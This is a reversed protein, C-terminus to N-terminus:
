QVQLVLGRRRKYRRHFPVPVYLMSISLELRLSISGQMTGCGELNVPSDEFVNHAFVCAYVDSPDCEQIRTLEPEM